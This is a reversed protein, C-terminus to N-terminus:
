APTLREKIMATFKTIALLWDQDPLELGAPLKVRLKKKTLTAHASKINM